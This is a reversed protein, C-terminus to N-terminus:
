PLIVSLLTVLVISIAIFVIFRIKTRQKREEILRAKIQRLVHPRSKPFDYEPKGNYSYGGLFTNKRRHKKLLDRNNKLVINASGFSM